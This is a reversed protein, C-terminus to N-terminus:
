KVWRPKLVTKNLRNWLTYWQEVWHKLVADNKDEANSECEQMMTWYNDMVNKQEDEPILIAM